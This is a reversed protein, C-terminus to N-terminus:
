GLLNQWPLELSSYPFELKLKIYAVSWVLSISHMTPWYAVSRGDITVLMCLTSGFGAFSWSRALLRLLACKFFTKENKTAM